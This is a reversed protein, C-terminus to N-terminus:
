LIEKIDKLAPTADEKYLQEAKNEILQLQDEWWSIAETIAHLPKFARTGILFYDGDDSLNNIRKNVSPDIKYEKLLNNRESEIFDHFIGHCKYNTKWLRYAEAISSKIFVSRSGDINRLVHGVTRLLTIVLVWELRIDPVSEARKFRDKSRYCDRLVARAALAEYKTYPNPKIVKGKKKKVWTTAM